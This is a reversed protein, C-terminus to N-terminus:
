SWFTILSRFLWCTFHSFSYIEYIIIIFWFILLELEFIIFFECLSFLYTNLIRVWNWYVKDFCFTQKFTCFKLPVGVHFISTSLGSVWLFYDFVSPRDSTIMVHIILFLYHSRSVLLGILSETIAEVEFREPTPKM